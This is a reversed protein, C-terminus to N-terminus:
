GTEGEIFDKERQVAIEGGMAEINIQVNVQGAGTPGSQKEELLGSIKAMDRVLSVSESSHFKKARFSEGSASVLNVEKKGTIKPVLSMYMEEVFQRTILSSFVKEDQLRAIFGRPLPTRLLRNAVAVSIDAVQAAAKKDYGNAVYELCFLRHEPALDIFDNNQGRSLLEPSYDNLVPPGLHSPSNDM